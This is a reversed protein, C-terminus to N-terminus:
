CNYKTFLTIILFCIFFKSPLDKSHKLWKVQGLPNNVRWPSRDLPITCRQWRILAYRMSQITLFHTFRSKTLRSIGALSIHGWKKTKVREKTCTYVVKHYPRVTYFMQTMNNPDASNAKQNLLNNRVLICRTCIWILPTSNWKVARRQSYIIRQASHLPRFVRGVPRTFKEAICM